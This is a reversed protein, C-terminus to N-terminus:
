SLHPDTNLPLTSPREEKRISRGSWLVSGLLRTPTRCDIINLDLGIRHSVAPMSNFLSDPVTGRFDSSILVPSKADGVTEPGGFSYSYKDWLLNLGASTGIELLALPRAPFFGAMHTIAPFLYASRRVENTQVLRNELVEAIEERRSLVFSRFAPFALEPNEPSDPTLSVYYNALSSAPRSTLLFHVAGFLLNPIPQGKGSVEALRLLEEDQAIELSLHYYLESSGLCESNAFRLFRNSLPHEM